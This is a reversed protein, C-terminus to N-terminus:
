SFLELLNELRACVKPPGLFKSNKVHIVDSRHNQNILRSSLKPFNKRSNDQPFIVTRHYSSIVSNKSTFFSLRQHLYTTFYSTGKGVSLKLVNRNSKMLVDIARPPYLDNWWREIESNAPLRVAAVVIQKSAKMRPQFRAPNHKHTPQTTYGSCYIIISSVAARHTFCVLERGLDTGQSSFLLVSADVGRYM